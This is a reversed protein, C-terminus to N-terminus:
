WFFLQGRSKGLRGLSARRSCQDSQPCPFPWRCGDTLTSLFAIGVIRGDLRTGHSWWIPVQEELIPVWPDFWVTVFEHPRSNLRLRDKEMVCPVIRVATLYSMASANPRSFLHFLNRHLLGSSNLVVKSSGSADGATRGHQLCLVAPSVAVFVVMVRQLKFRNNRHFLSCYFQYDRFSFQKATLTYSERLYRADNVTVAAAAVLCPGSESHFGVVSIYHHVQRDCSRLHCGYLIAGCFLIWRIHETFLARPFILTFLIMISPACQKAFDRCDPWISIEAVTIYFSSM